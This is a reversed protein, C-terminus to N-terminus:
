RIKITKAPIGVVVHNELVEKTVVASAGVIANSGVKAYELLVCNTGLLVNDMISVNGSINAGPNFVNCSGIVSDHGLTVNLNFVNFDGINIDCTFICGATIINGKGLKVYDFDFIASQHILNPFHYKYFKNTIKKLIDPEGSGLYLDISQNEPKHQSLFFEEDIVPFERQMTSIFKKEPKYDIFGKFNEISGTKDKILFLVERAFSGSGLIYFDNKM